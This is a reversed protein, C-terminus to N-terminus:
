FVVNSTSTYAYHATAHLTKINLLCIIGHLSPTAGTYISAVASSRDVNDFSFSANQYVRGDKWLRKFGREGYLPSFNELYDTRLQDITVTIVIKPAEPQPQAHLTNITLVTFISTLIGKM